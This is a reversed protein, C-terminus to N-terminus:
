RKGSAATLVRYCGGGHWPRPGVGGSVATAQEEEERLLVCGRGMSAPDKEREQLGAPM